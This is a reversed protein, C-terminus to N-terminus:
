QKHSDALFSPLVCSMERCVDCLLSVVLEEEVKGKENWKEERELM